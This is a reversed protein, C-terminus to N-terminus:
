ERASLVRVGVRERARKVSGEGGLPSAGECKGRWALDQGRQAVLYSPLGKTCRSNQELRM